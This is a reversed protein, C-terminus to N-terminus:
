SIPKCSPCLMKSISISQQLPIKSAILTMKVSLLLPAKNSFGSMMLTLTLDQTTVSADIGAISAFFLPSTLQENLILLYLDLLATYRPTGDILPSKFALTLSVDPVQFDPASTYYAKGFSDDVILDPIEQDIKAAVQINEPIYPNAKPLGIHQTAALTLASTNFPRVAYRGGLWKETKEPEIGTLEPSATLTFLCNETSLTRM